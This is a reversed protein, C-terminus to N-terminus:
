SASASASVSSSASLSISKSGGTDFAQDSTVTLPPKYRPLLIAFVEGYHASASGGTNVTIGDFNNALDLCDEPVIDFIVIKSKSQAADTTWAKAPTGVTWNVDQGGDETLSCDNCYMFPVNNTLAKEGTGAATGAAGSSQALTFTETSASAGCMIRCVVFARHYNRLCINIGNRGSTNVGIPLIEAIGLGLPLHDSRSM